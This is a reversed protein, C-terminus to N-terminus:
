DKDRKSPEPGAEHEITKGGEPDGWGISVVTKSEEQLREAEAREPDRKDDDENAV